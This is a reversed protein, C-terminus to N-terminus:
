GVAFVNVANAVATKINADSANLIQSETLTNNQALIAKLMSRGASLPNEFTDKAWLLRNAHNSTGVDENRIDEAVLLCAVSVKSVMDPHNFLGALELYTAM